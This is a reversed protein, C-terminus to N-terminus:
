GPHGEGNRERRRQELLRQLRAVREERTEDLEPYKVRQLRIQEERRARAQRDKEDFEQQHAWYFREAVTIEEHSLTPIWRIIEERANGSQFYRVLDLVTIRCTSLQPGRGHDVITIEETM